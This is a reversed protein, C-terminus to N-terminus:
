KKGEKIISLCEEKSLLNQDIDIENKFTITQRQYPKKSPDNPLSDANAINQIIVRLRAGQAKMGAASIRFSSILDDAM